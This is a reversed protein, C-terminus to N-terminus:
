RKKRLGRLKHATALSSNLDSILSDFALTTEAELNPDVKFYSEDPLLSSIPVEFLEAVKRLSHIQANMQGDEMFFVWSSSAGLKQAMQKQTLDAMVRHQKIKKGIADLFEDRQRPESSKKTWRPM